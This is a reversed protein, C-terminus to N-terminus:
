GALATVGVGNGERLIAIAQEMQEDDTQVTVLNGGLGAGQVYLHTDRELTDVGIWLALLAGVLSGIAVFGVLTAVVYTADYGLFNRGALAAGLGFPGFIAIGLVAGWGLSRAMPHNLDGALWQRSVSQPTSIDEQAFGAGELQRLANQVEEDHWFLGIVTKM